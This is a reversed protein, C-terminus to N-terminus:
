KTKQTYQTCIRTVSQGISTESEQGCGFGCWKRPQVCEVAVMVIVTVTVTVMVVM